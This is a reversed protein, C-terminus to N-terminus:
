RPAGAISQYSEKPEELSQQLLNRSQALLKNCALYSVVSEKPVGKGWEIVNIPPTGDGLMGELNNENKRPEASKRLESSTM